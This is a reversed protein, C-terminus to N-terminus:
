PNNDSTCAIAHRGGVAVDGIHIAKKAFWTLKTFEYQIHKGGLDELGLRGDKNLGCSYLDGSESLIISFNNGAAAKKIKIREMDKIFFYKEGSRKMMGLQGNQSNGASFLAGDQDVVLTHDLGCSVQKAKVVTDRKKIEVEVPYYLDKVTM